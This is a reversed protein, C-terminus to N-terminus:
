SFDKATTEKICSLPGWSVRVLLSMNTFTVYDSQGAEHAAQQYLQTQQLMYCFPPCGARQLWWTSVPLIPFLPDSCTFRKRLSTKHLHHTKKQQEQKRKQKKFLATM